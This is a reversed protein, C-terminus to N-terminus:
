KRNNKFNKQTKKKLYSQYYEKTKSTDPIKEILTTKFSFLDKKNKPRKTSYYSNGKSCRIQIPGNEYAFDRLEKTRMKKIPSVINLKYM